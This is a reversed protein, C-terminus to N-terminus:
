QHPYRPSEPACQPLSHEYTPCCRLPFHDRLQIRRHTYIRLSKRYTLIRRKEDILSLRFQWKWLYPLRYSFDFLKPQALSYQRHIRPFLYQNRWSMLHLFLYLIRSAKVELELIRYFYIGCFRHHYNKCLLLLVLAGFKIYHFAM